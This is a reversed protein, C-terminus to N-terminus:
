PSIRSTIRGRAANPPLKAQDNLCFIQRVGVQGSTATTAYIVSLDGAKM